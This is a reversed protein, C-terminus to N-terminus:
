VSGQFTVFLRGDSIKVNKYVFLFFLFIGCWRFLKMIMQGTKVLKSQAVTKQTITNIQKSQKDESQTEPNDLTSQTESNDLTSQTEPNDLTPQTEPNDM